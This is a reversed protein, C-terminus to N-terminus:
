GNIAENQITSKLVSVCRKAVRSRLEKFDVKKNSRVIESYEEEFIDEAVRMPLGLSDEENAMLEMGLDRGEDVMKWIAKEIRGNTCYSAVIKEHGKIAEKPSQGHSQEFKEEFEETVTKARTSFGSIQDEEKESNIIVGGEAKGDRWKSEPVEFDEDYEEADMKAVIPATELGLSNFFSYAENYDLWREKSEDYVDFGLFQPINEWDYDLSHSVMNEGFFVYQTGFTEAVREPDINERIHKIAAKFRSDVNESYDPEGDIKYEVNKSGFLWKYEGDVEVVTARFNAGDLKEKIILTGEDLIGKNREHGLRKIKSFKKM